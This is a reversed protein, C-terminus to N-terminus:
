EQPVSTAKLLRSSLVTLGCGLGLALVVYSASFFVSSLELNQRDVATNSLALMLFALSVYAAFLKHPRDITDNCELHGIQRSISYSTVM